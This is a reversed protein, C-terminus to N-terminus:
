QKVILCQSTSLEILQEPKDYFFEVFAKRVGNITSFDHTIIVGGRVTRPYFYELAEKTSAYLDLDLHVFAFKEELTGASDPFIGQIHHINQYKALYRQVSELSGVYQGQAFDESNSPLGEYTDFLYLARDIKAECILKASAGQYVGAEAFVGELKMCEAALSFIHFAEAPWLTMDVEKEIRMYLAVFEKSKQYGLLWLQAAKFPWRLLKKFKQLVSSNSHAISELCSKVTNLKEM